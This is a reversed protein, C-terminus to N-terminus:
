EAAAAPAAAAGIATTFQEATMRLQLKGDAPAFSARPLIALVGNHDVVVNGDEKLEKVKGIVVGDTSVADADVVLVADLAAAAQQAAAVAAADLQERTMGIVLGKPGSVFSAIGLAVKNSGTDVVVVGNAASDVKGVENGQPGYVMMGASVAPASAAPATQAQAAAGLPALAVLAALTVHTLKM